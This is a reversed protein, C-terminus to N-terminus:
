LWVSVMHLRTHTNHRMHRDGNLDVHILHRNRTLTSVARCLSKSSPTVHDLDLPSCCHQLKFRHSGSWYKAVKRDKASARPERQRRPLGVATFDPTWANKLLWYLRGTDVSQKPVRRRSYASSSSAHRRAPFPELHGRATWWVRRYGPVQDAAVLSCFPPSPLSETHSHTSTNILAFLERVQSDLYTITKAHALLM